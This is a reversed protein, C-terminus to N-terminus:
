LQIRFAVTGVRNEAAAVLVRWSTSGPPVLIQYGGAHAASLETGDVDINFVGTVQQLSLYSAALYVQHAADGLGRSSYVNVSKAFQPVTGTTALPGGGATGSRNLMFSRWADTALNGRQITGRVRVLAPIKLGYGAALNASEPFEDWLVDVRCAPTPLQLTFGPFADVEATHSAGGGGLSIRCILPVVGAGPAGSPGELITSTVTLIWSGADAFGNEWLENVNADLLQRRWPQWPQGPASQVGPAEVQNGFQTSYPRRFHLDDGHSPRGTRSSAIPM